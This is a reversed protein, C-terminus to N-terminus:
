PPSKQFNKSVPIERGEQISFLRGDAVIFHDLLRVGISRLNLDIIKTLWEDHESPLPNGDPHNHCLVIAACDRRLAGGVISRPRLFVKEGEGSALREIGESMLRLKGDLYAIELHERREQGLRRRWHEQLTRRIDGDAEKAAFTRQDLYLLAIERIFKLVLVSATGIGDVALLDGEGADLIGRLTQFRRLLERAQPKVDCCPLALTLLFEVVEHPLFGKLESQSFRNRLNKRHGAAAAPSLKESGDSGKAAHPPNGGPKQKM